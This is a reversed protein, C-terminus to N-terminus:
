TIHDPRVTRAVATPPWTTVRLLARRWGRRRTCLDTRQQRSYNTRPGLWIQRCCEVRGATAPARDRGLWPRILAGVAHLWLHLWLCSWVYEHLQVRLTATTAPRHWQATVPRRLVMERSRQSFLTSRIVNKTIHALIIQLVLSIDTWADM